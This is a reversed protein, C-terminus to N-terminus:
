RPHLLKSSLGPGAIKWAIATDTRPLRACCKVFCFMFCDYSFRLTIRTFSWILLIIILIPQFITVILSLFMQLVGKILIEYIVIRIIPFFSSVEFFSDTDYILINFIYVILVILIIWIWATLGLFFCLISSLIIAIPYLLFVFIGVFVLKLIYSNILNFIRSFNKGFIGTDPSNEFQHRLESIWALLSSIASRYTFGEKTPYVRGTDADCDFDFYVKEACLAKLGFSSKWCVNFLILAVNNLWIHYRMLILWKRWFIYKSHCNYSINRELYYRFDLENRKVEFPPFIYRQFNFTMKAEYKEPLDPLNENEKMLRKVNENFVKNEAYIAKCLPFKELKTLIKTTKDNILNKEIPLLRQTYEKSQWEVVKSRICYESLIEQDLKKIEENQIKLYNFEEKAIKIYAKLIQLIMQKSRDDLKNTKEFHSFLNKYREKALIKSIDSPNINDDDFLNQELAIENVWNSDFDSQLKELIQKKYIFYISLDLDPLMELLKEYSKRGVIQRLIQKFNSSKKKSSLGILIGMFNKLGKFIEVVSNTISCPFSSNAYLFRNKITYLANFALRLDFYFSEAINNYGKVTWQTLKWTYPLDPINSEINFQGNRWIESLQTPNLMKEDGLYAVEYENYGKYSISVPENFITTPMSFQYTDSNTTDWLILNDEIYKKVKDLISDNESFEYSNSGLLNIEYKITPPLNIEVKEKEM